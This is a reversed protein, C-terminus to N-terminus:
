KKVEISDGPTQRLLLTYVRAILVMLGFGVGIVTLVITQLGENEMFDTYVM